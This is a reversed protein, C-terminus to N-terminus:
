HTSTTYFYVPKILSSSVLAASLVDQTIVTEAENRSAASRVLLRPDVYGHLRPAGQGAM